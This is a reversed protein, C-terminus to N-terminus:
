VGEFEYRDAIQRDCLTARPKGKGKRKHDPSIISVLHNQDHFSNLFPMSFYIGWEKTCNGRELGWKNKAEQCELMENTIRVFATCSSFELHINNMEKIEAKERRM